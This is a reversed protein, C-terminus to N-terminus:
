SFQGDQLSAPVRRQALASQVTLQLNAITPRGALNSEFCHDQLTAIDARTIKIVVQYTKGNARM